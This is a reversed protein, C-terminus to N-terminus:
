SLDQDTFIETKQPNHLGLAPLLFDPLSKDKLEKLIPRKETGCILAVARSALSLLNFNATVRLPYKHMGLAEYGVMYNQTKFLEDFRAQTKQPFIGATHGDAGMGATLFIKGRPNLKLWNQLNLDLRKAFDALSEQMRPLTGFFNVNSSQALTYFETKQMQLFNNGKPEQGYREDLMSVTLNESLAKESIYDLIQLASGGSLLLLIPLQDHSILVDNLTEGALAAAEAQSNLTIIKLPNKM